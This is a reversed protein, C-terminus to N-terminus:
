CALVALQWLSGALKLVAVPRMVTRINFVADLQIHLM